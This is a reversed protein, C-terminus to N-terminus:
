LDSLHDNLANKFLYWMYLITNIHQKHDYAHASVRVHGILNYVHCLELTDKREVIIWMELMVDIWQDDNNDLFHGQDELLTKVSVEKWDIIDFWAFHKKVNWRNWLTQRSISILM